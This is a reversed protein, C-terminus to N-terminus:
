VGAEIMGTRRAMEEIWRFSAFGIVSYVVALALEWALADTAMAMESGAFALRFAELGHTLPLIQAFTQLPLPLAAVPILVGTVLLLVSGAFSYIATWNRYLLAINGILLAYATSSLTVVVVAMVLLAWNARTYDFGLFIAGFAVSLAFCLLGNPYHMGSRAAYSWWRSAPSCYILPLTGFSREYSFAQIVGGTIIEAISYLAMGLVYQQAAEPHGAFRGVLSFMAVNLMLRAVINGIVGPWNLWLFLAKYSLYIQTVLNTM